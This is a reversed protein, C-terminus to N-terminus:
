IHPACSGTGLVALGALDGQQLTYVSDSAQPNMLQSPDDVHDLGVVHGLEHTIVGLADNIGNPMTVLDVMGPGDLTVSGTVYVSRGVRTVPASGGIGVTNGELAPTEEPTSWSVLVPAWRKGYREPEYAPRDMSPAEDTLGDDVFVLGSAASMRAVATAILDAGNAPGGDPRVVYHIPRCPSWAVPGSGDPQMAAFAHNGTAALTEPPPTGLPTSSEEFGAPAVSSQQVLWWKGGVLASAAVFLTMVLVFGPRPGRRVRVPPGLFRIGYQDEPPYRPSPVVSTQPGTGRADVWPNLGYPDGGSM